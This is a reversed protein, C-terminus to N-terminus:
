IQCGWRWRSGSRLTRGRAPSPSFSCAGTSNVTRSQRTRQGASTFLAETVVTAMWRCTMGGPMALDTMLLGADRGQQLDDAVRETRCFFTGVRPHRGSNGSLARSFVSVFPTTSGFRGIAVQVAPVLGVLLGRGELPIPMATGDDDTRVSILASRSGDRSRHETHRGDCPNGPIARSCPRNERADM